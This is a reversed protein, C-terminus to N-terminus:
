ASDNIDNEEEVQWYNSIENHVESGLENSEPSEESSGFGSEPSDIAFLDRRQQELHNMHMREIDIENIRSSVRESPIDLQTQVNYYDDDPNEDEPYHPNYNGRIEGEEESYVLFQHPQAEQRTNHYQQYLPNNDSSNPQSAQM